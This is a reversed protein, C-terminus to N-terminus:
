RRGFASAFVDDTAVDQKKGEELEEAAHQGVGKVVPKGTTNNKTLSEILLKQGSIMEKAAEITIVDPMIMKKVSECVEKSFDADLLASLKAAVADSKSGNTKSEELEKLIAAKGANQISEVLDPREKTLTDATLSKFDMEEGGENEIAAQQASEFLDKNTSPDVVFDVSFGTFKDDFSEVLFVGKDSQGTGRDRLSFGIGTPNMKAIAMVDKRNSEALHLDGRVKAGDLRINKYVGGFDRVSRNVNRKDPAQHDIFMKAGEYRTVAENLAKQTYFTKNGSEKLGTLMAVGKIVGNADDISAGGMAEELTTSEQLNRPKM